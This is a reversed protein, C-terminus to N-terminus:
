APTRAAHPAHGPSLRKIPFKLPKNDAPQPLVTRQACLPRCVASEPTDVVVKPACSGIACPAGGRRFLCAGCVQRHNGAKSRAGGAPRRVLRRTASRWGRGVVEWGGVAVPCSRAACAAGAMVSLRIRAGETRTSACGCTRAHVNNQVTRRLVCWCLANQHARHCRLRARTCAAARRGARILGATACRPVTLWGWLGNRDRLAHAAARGRRLWAGAADNCIAAQTVGLVAASINKDAPRRAGCSPRLHVSAPLAAQRQQPRRV